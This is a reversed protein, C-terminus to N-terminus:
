DLLMSPLSQIMRDFPGTDDLIRVLVLAGQIHMIATEARQHAAESEIGAEALVEALANVWARLSRRLQQRLTDHAAGVSFVALLCSKRGHDYYTAVEAAMAQIRQRPTGEAKLPALVASSLCRGAHDLVATMMEEKGDPFYHYLSARGLGTAKSLLSLTTGEFGYQRFVPLLKAIADERSMTNDIGQSCRHINARELAGAPYGTIDSQAPCIFSSRPMLIAIAIRGFM